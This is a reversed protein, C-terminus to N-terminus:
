PDGDNLSVLRAEDAFAVSPDVENGECIEYLERLFSRVRVGDIRTPLAQAGALAILLLGRDRELHDALAPQVYQGEVVRAGWRQFRRLREWNGRLRPDNVEGLVLSVGEDHLETVADRLLREGIGQGRAHPAVVMYTVFGVNSAPYREYCIGADDDVIQVRLEYALEGRLARQWVDLPEHQAAFADWYIGAHFRALRPDDAYLRTARM